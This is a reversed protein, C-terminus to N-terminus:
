HPVAFSVPILRRVVGAAKEKRTPPKLKFLPTLKLAARAFDYEPPTESKVNCDELLGERTVRCDLVVKGDVEMRQARDPYWRGAENGTPIKRYDSAKVPRATEEALCPGCVVLAALGALIYARM